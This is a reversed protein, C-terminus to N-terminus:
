HEVAQYTVCTSRLTSNVLTHLGLWQWLRL